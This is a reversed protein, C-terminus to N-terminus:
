ERPPLIFTIKHLIEHLVDPITQNDIQYITLIIINTLVVKCKFIRYIKFCDRVAVSIAENSLLLKNM